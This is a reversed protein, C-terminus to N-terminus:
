VKGSAGPPKLAEVLRELRAARSAKLLMVDGPRLFTKVADAAADIDAFEGVAKVGAARAADATVGAM